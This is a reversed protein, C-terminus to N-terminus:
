LKTYTYLSNTVFSNVTETIYLIITSGTGGNGSTNGSGSFTRMVAPTGCIFSQSPMSVTGNGNIFITLKDSANSYDGFKSWQLGNNLTISSNLSENYSHNPQGITTILVYFNGIWPSTNSSNVVEVSRHVESMNGASDSISYHIQYTGSSDNNLESLDVVVQATINGDNDDIAIYGTETYVSNLPLIFPNNGYLTIIPSITDVIVAPSPTNKVVPDSSDDDSKCGQWTVVTIVTILYFCEKLNM